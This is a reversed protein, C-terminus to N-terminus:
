HHHHPPPVKPSGPPGPADPPVPVGLEEPLKLDILNAIRGVESRPEIKDKIDRLIKTAQEKDADTPDKHSVLIEAYTLQAGAPVDAQKLISDLMALAKDYDGERVLVKAMTALGPDYGSNLKLAEDLLKHAQALKDKAEEPTKAANAVGVLLDALATKTRYALPNPNAESVDKIAAEFAAQAEKLNQALLWAVGLMHRGLKGQAQSAIKDLENAIPEREKDTAANAMRAATDLIKAEVSAQKADGDKPTTLQVLKDAQELADKPKKLDLNAYVSLARARPGDLRQTIALAKDPHGEALALGADVVLVSPDDEAKTKGYWIVCNRANATGLLDGRMYAGWAVGAWFRPEVVAQACLHEDTLPKGVAIRLDTNAKVYDEIGLEALGLALARYATVRTGMKKDGIALNIDDIVSSADLGAEARALAKGLVALPHQKAKALIKDYLALADELNGDDALLDAQDIMAVVLGDEGDAAQKLSVRAAKREGAALQARAKLWRAWKDDNKDLYDDLM